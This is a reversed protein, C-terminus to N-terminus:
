GGTKWDEIAGIKFVELYAIVEARNMGSVSYKWTVTGDENKVLWHVMAQDVNTKVIQQLAFELADRPTWLHSDQGNEARKKALEDM